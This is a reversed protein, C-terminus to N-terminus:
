RRRAVRFHTALDLVLTEMLTYMDVDSGGKLAYETEAVRCYSQIAGSEGLLRSEKLIYEAQRVPNQGALGLRKALREANLRPRSLATLYSRYKKVMVSILVLPHTHELVRGLIRLAETRDGQQISNLVGFPSIEGITGVAADLDDWTLHDKPIMRAIDLADVMIQTDDGAHDVLSEAASRDITKDFEGLWSVVWDVTDSFPSLPISYDHEDESVTLIDLVPKLVRGGNRQVLVVDWETDTDRLLSAMEGLEASRWTDINDIVLQREPYSIIEDDAIVYSLEELDTVALDVRSRSLEDGPMGAVYRDLIDQYSKVYGGRFLVCQMVTM